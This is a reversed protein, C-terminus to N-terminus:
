LRSHIRISTRQYAPCHGIRRVKGQGDDFPSRRENSKTSDLNIRSLLMMSCFLRRSAILDKDRGGFV